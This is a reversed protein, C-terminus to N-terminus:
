ASPQVDAGNAQGSKPKNPTGVPRGRRKVTTGVSQGALVRAWAIGSEAEKQEEPTLKAKLAETEVFARVYQEIKTNM